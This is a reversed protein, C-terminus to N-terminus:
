FDPQSNAEDNTDDYANVSALRASVGCSGTEGDLWQYPLYQGPTLEFIGSASGVRKGSSNYTAVTIDYAMDHSSNNTITANIYPDNSSDCSNQIATIDATPHLYLPGFTVKNSTAYYRQTYNIPKQNGNVVRTFSIKGDTADQYLGGSLDVKKFTAWGQSNATAQYSLSDDTYLYLQTGPSDRVVINFKWNGKPWGTAVKISYNSQAFAPTCIAVAALLSVVVGIVVPRNFLKYM